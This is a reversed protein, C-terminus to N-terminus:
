VKKELASIEKFTVYFGLVSKVWVYLGSAAESYNSMPKGAKELIADIKEVIKKTEDIWPKKADKISYNLLDDLLGGSLILRCNAWSLPPKAKANVRLVLLCYCTLEVPESTNSFTALEVLSPKKIQKIKKQAEEFEPKKEAFLKKAM